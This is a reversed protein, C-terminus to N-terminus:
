AFAAKLSGVLCVCGCPLAAVRCLRVSCPIHAVLRHTTAGLRDNVHVPGEILAEADRTPPKRAASYTCVICCPALGLEFDFTSGSM